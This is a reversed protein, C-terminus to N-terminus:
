GFYQSLETRETESALDPFTVARSVKDERIPLLYLKSIKFNKPLSTIEGSTM